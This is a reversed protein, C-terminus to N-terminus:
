YWPDVKLYECIEPLPIDFSGWNQLIVLQGEYLYFTHFRDAYRGVFSRGEYQVGGHFSLIEEETLLFGLERQSDSDEQYRGSVYLWTLLGDIEFLDGLMVREGSQLDVTVSFDAVGDSIKDPTWTRVSYVVSLWEESQYAIYIKVNDFLEQRESDNRWGENMICTRIPEQLIKNIREQKAKDALGDIGVCCFGVRDCEATVMQVKYCQEGYMASQEAVTKKQYLEMKKYLEGLDQPSYKKGEREVTSYPLIREQELDLTVYLGDYSCGEPLSTNSVYRFCFYRESRYTIRIEQMQWWDEEEADPLVEVYYELLMRNIREEKQRDDPIEVLLVPVVYPQIEVEGIQYTSSPYSWHAECKIYYSFQQKIEMCKRGSESKSVDQSVAAGDDVDEQESEAGSDSIAEKDSETRYAGEQEAGCGCSISLVVAMVVMGAYILKNAKRCKNM